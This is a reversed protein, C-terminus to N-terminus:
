RRIREELEGQISYLNYECHEYMILTRPGNMLIQRCLESGISGGAGTVMVVQDRICRELLEVHPEVPERGPLRSPQPIRVWRGTRPGASHHRSDAPPCQAAHGHLGAPRSGRRGPLTDM